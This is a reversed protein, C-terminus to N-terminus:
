TNEVVELNGPQRACYDVIAQRIRDQESKLMPTLMGVVIVFTAPADEFYVDYNGTGSGHQRVIRRLEGVMGAHIGTVNKILLKM